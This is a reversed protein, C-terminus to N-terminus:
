EKNVEECIRDILQSKTGETSLNLNICKEKLKDLNLKHLKKRTIQIEGSNVSENDTNLLEKKLDFIIENEKNEIKVDDQIETIIDNKIINDIDISNTEENHIPNIICSNNHCVSKECRKDSNFVENMIIETLNFNKNDNSLTNSKISDPHGFELEIKNLKENIIYIDNEIIFLKYILYTLLLLIIFICILYIFYNINSLLKFIM